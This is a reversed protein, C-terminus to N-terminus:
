NNKFTSPYLGAYSFPEKIKKALKRIVDKSLKLKYDTTLLGIERITKYDSISYDEEKLLEEIRKKKEKNM